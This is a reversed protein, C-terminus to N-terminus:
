RRVQWVPTGTEAYEVHKAQTNPIESRQARHARQARQAPPTLLPSIYASRTEATWCPQSHTNQATRCRNQTWCPSAAACTSVRGAAGAGGANEAARRAPGALPRCSDTAIIAASGSRMAARGSRRQGGFAAKIAQRHRIRPSEDKHEDV